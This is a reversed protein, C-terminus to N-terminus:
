EEEPAFLEDVRTHPERGLPFALALTPGYKDNEIANLTQRSVGCRRALEEQSLGMEKRIERIKNKM